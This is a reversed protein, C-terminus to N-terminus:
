STESPVMRLNNYGDTPNANTTPAQYNEFRKGAMPSLPEEDSYVEKDEKEIVKYDGKINLEMQKNDLYLCSHHHRATEARGRCKNFDCYVHTFNIAGATPMNLYPHDSTPSSATSHDSLNIHNSTIEQLARITASDVHHPILDDEIISVSTYKHIRSLTDAIHNDKGATHVITCNFTMCLDQWRRLKQSHPTGQM